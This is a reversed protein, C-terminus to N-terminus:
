TIIAILLIGYQHKHEAIAASSNRHRSSGEPRLWKPAYVGM